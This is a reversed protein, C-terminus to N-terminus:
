MDPNNLTLLTAHSMPLDMINSANLIMITYPLESENKMFNHKANLMIFYEIYVLIVKKNCFITIKDKSEYVSVGLNQLRHKSVALRKKKGIFFNTDEM